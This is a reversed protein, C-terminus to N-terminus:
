NGKRKESNGIKVAGKRLADPIRNPPAYRPSVHCGMCARREDPRVWIHTRTKALVMGQPDLLELSLARDAPVELFVSGDPEPIVTEAIPPEGDLSRLILSAISGRGLNQLQPDDSRAVDFILLYGTKKEQKVISPIIGPKSRAERAVPQFAHWGEAEFLLKPRKEQDKLVYVGYFGNAANKRASLLLSGDSLFSAERLQLAPVLVRTEAPQYLYKLTLQELRGLDQAQVRAMDDGHFPNRGLPVDVSFVGFATLWTGDPQITLLRNGKPIPNRHQLLIRGDPLLVHSGIKGGSHTVSVATGKEGARFIEGERIFLIGGDPLKLPHGCDGDEHTLPEIAATELDMRWIQWFSDAAQKGSFLLQQGAFDLAPDCAGIFGPTLNFFVGGSWLYLSTGPQHLDWPDLPTDVHARTFVINRASGNLHLDDQAAKALCSLVCMFLLYHSGKKCKLSM